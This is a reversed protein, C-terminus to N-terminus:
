WRCPLQTRVVAMLLLDIDRYTNGRYSVEFLDPRLRELHKRLDRCPFM